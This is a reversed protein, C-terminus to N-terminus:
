GSPWTSCRGGQKLWLWALLGLLVPALIGVLLAAFFLDFIRKGWTM